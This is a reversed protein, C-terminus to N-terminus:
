SKEQIVLEQTNSNYWSMLSKNIQSQVLWHGHQCAAGRLGFRLQFRPKNYSIQTDLCFVDPFWLYLSEINEVGCLRIAMAEKPIDTWKLSGTIETCGDYMEINLKTLNSKLGDLELKLKTDCVVSLDHLDQPIQSTKIIRNPNDDRLQVSLSELHFKNTPQVYFGLCVDNTQSWSHIFRGNQLASIRCSQVSTSTFDSGTLMKLFSRNDASLQCIPFKVFLDIWKLNYGRVHLLRLDQYNFTSHNNVYIEVRRHASNEIRLPQVVKRNM